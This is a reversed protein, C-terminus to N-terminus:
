LIEESTKLDRRPWAGDYRGKVRVACIGALRPSLDAVLPERTLDDARRAVSSPLDISTTPLDPISEGKWWRCQDLRIESRGWFRGRWLFSGEANTTKFNQQVHGVGVLSQITVTLPCNQLKFWLLLSLLSM